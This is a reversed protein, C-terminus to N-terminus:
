TAWNSICHFNQSYLQHSSMRAIAGGILSAILTNHRKGNTFFHCFALAGFAILSGWFLSSLFWYGGLLCETQTMLFINKAHNIFDDMSYLHQVIGHYGYKDNYINWHFFINHLILFFLGWKVYPWWMGKIRKWVFSIPEHLYKEKFCYGSVIFFLPM